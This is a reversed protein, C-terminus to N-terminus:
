AVRRARLASVATVAFQALLVFFLGYFAVAFARVDASTAGMARVDFRGADHWIDHGAAFMLLWCALCAATFGLSTFQRSARTM